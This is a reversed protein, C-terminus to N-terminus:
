NQRTEKILKMQLEHFYYCASLMGLMNNEGVEKGGERGNDERDMCMM